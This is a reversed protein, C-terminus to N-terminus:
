RVIIKLVERLSPIKGDAQFIDRINASLFTEIGDEELSKRGIASKHKKWHDQFFQSMILYDVEQTFTVNKVLKLGLKSFMVARLRSQYLGNIINM